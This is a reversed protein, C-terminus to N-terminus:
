RQASSSSSTPRENGRGFAREALSTVQDLVFPKTLVADIGKEKAEKGSIRDTYGTMLVVTTMPWRRKIRTAVEIGSIDPLGIDVMALGFTQSEAEVLGSEGDEATVVAYGYRRLLDGLLDCVEASDDVALIRAVEPRDTEVTAASGIESAPVCEVPPGGVPLRITFAAGREGDSLVTLEGGHRRVAAYAASLDHWKRKERRRGFVPEFARIRDEEELRLGSHAVVCVVANGDVGIRFALEGGDPMADLAGLVVSSLAKRLEVVDGRIAPVPVAELKVDGPKGALSMQEGWSSRALLAMEDVLRSVDIQELPRTLRIRGFEQLCQVIWAGGSAVQEMIRLQHRVDAESVTPLLLQIRGLIGTLINSLDHALEGSMERLARLREAEIPGQCPAAVEALLARLDEFWGPRNSSGPLPADQLPAPAQRGTV